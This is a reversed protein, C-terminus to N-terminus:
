GALLSQGQQFLVVFLREVDLVGQRHLANHAPEGLFVTLVRVEPAQAAQEVIHVKFVPGLLVTQFGRLQQRLYAGAGLHNM